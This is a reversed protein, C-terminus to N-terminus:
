RSVLLQTKSFPTVHMTKVYTNGYLSVDNSSLPHYWKNGGSRNMFPKFENVCLRLNRDIRRIETTPVSRGNDTVSKDDSEAEDIELCPECGDSEVLVGSRRVRNILEHKRLHFDGPPLEIPSQSRTRTSAVIGTFRSEGKPPHSFDGVLTVYGINHDSTVRVQRDRDWNYLGTVTPQSTNGSADRKNALGGVSWGM